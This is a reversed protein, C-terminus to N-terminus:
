AGDRLAAIQTVAEARLRTLEAQEDGVAKEHGAMSREIAQIVPADPAISQLATILSIRVQQEGALKHRMLAMEAGHLQQLINIHADHRRENAAIVKNLDKVEAELKDVRAILAARFNAEGTQGLERWRPAIKVIATLIGGAVMVVLVWIGAATVSGTTSKVAVAAVESPGMLVGSM